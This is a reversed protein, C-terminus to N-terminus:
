GMLAVTVIFAAIAAGVQAALRWPSKDSQVIDSADIRPADIM